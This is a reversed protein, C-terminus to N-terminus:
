EHIKNKSNWFLVLKTELMEWFLARETELMERLGAAGGNKVQEIELM